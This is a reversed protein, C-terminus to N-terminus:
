ASGEKWIVENPPPDSNGERIWKKAVSIKSTVKDM